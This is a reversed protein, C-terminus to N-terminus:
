FLERELIECIFQDWFKRDVTEPLRSTLALSEVEEM